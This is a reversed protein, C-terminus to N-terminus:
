GFIGKHKSDPCGAMDAINRGAMTLIAWGDSDVRVLEYSELRSCVASIDSKKVPAFHLRCLVDQEEKTLDKWGKM